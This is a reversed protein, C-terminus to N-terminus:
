QGVGLRRRRQTAWNPAVKRQSLINFATVVRPVGGYEVTVKDPGGIGVQGVSMLGDAFSEGATILAGDPRGDGGNFGESCGFVYTRANRPFTTLAKFSVLLAVQSPLPQGVNTGAWAGATAQYEITPQNGIDVRRVDYANVTIQPTMVAQWHTKYVSDIDDVLQQLQANNPIDGDFSYHHINRLQDSALFAGKVAINFISM